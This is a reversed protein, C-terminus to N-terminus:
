AKSFADTLSHTLSGKFNRLFKNIANQIARFVCKHRFLVILHSHIIGSPSNPNIEEHVVGWGHVDRSYVILTSYSVCCNSLTFKKIHLKCLM